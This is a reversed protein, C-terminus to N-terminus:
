WMNQQVWNDANQIVHWGNKDPNSMNHIDQSVGTATGHLAECGCSFILLIILFLSNLKIYTGGM